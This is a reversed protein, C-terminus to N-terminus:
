LQEKRYSTNRDKHLCSFYSPFPKGILVEGLRLLQFTATYCRYASEGREWPQARVSFRLARRISEDAVRMTFPM